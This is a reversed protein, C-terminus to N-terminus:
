AEAGLLRPAPTELAERVRILGRRIYTKVTGLPMDLQASIESHSLGRQVSMLVVEREKPKLVKLARSALQAEARVEAENSHLDPMLELQLEDNVTKPRREKFRHLDILRRRAVVTIFTPESAKARDFREANKWIALFVEQVADEAEAPNRTHRRALSWVLGSYRDLLEQAAGPDGAALRPLVDPLSSRDVSSRSRKSTTPGRGHRVRGADVTAPQSSAAAAAIQLSRPPTDIRSTSGSSTTEM